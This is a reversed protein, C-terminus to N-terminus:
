GTESFVELREQRLRKGRIMMSENELFHRSLNDITDSLYEPEDNKLLIGKNVANTIVAPDAEQLDFFLLDIHDESISLVKSLRYTINIYAENKNTYKHLLILIDLDNVAHEDRAASGFLYAASIDTCKKLVRKLDSFLIPTDKVKLKQNKM